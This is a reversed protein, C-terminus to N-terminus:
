WSLCGGISKISLTDGDGDTDNDVVDIVIAQNENISESDAVAVPDNANSTDKGGIVTRADTIATGDVTVVIKPDGWPHTGDMNFTAM